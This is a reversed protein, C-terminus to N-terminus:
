QRSTFLPEAQVQAEDLANQIAARSDLEGRVAREAVTSYMDAVDGVAENTNVGASVIILDSPLTRAIQVANEGVRTAYTESNIQSLRPPIMQGAAEEHELLFTIWEWNTKPHM